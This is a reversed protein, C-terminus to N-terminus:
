PSTPTASPSLIGNSERILDDLAALTLKSPATGNKELWLRRLLITGEDCYKRVWDDSAQVFGNWTAIRISDSDYAVALTDHGLNPNPALDTATWKKTKLFAEEADDPLQVGVECCGFFAIARKISNIDGAEIQAFGDLRDLVGGVRVAFGTQMWYQNKTLLNAGNDNAHTKPDFGVLASYDAIACETDPTLPVSANATWLQISHLSTAITCNGCFDNGLIGIEGMRGSWDAAPPLLLPMLSLYRKAAPLGTHFLPASKGTQFQM